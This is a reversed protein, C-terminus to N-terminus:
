KWQRVDVARQFFQAIREIDQMEVTYAKKGTHIVPVQAIGPEIRYEILEVPALGNNENMRGVAFCRLMRAQVRRRKDHFVHEIRRASDDIKNKGAGQLAARINAEDDRVTAPRHRKEGLSDRHEFAMLM